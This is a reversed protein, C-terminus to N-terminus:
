ILKIASNDIGNDRNFGEIARCYLARTRPSIPALETFTGNDNFVFGDNAGADWSKETQLYTRTGVSNDKFGGRGFVFKIEDVVIQFVRNTKESGSALCREKFTPHEPERSHLYIAKLSEGNVSQITTM